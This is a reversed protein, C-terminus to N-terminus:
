KVKKWPVTKFSLTTLDVKSLGVKHLIATQFLELTDMHVDREWTSM